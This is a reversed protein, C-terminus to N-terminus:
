NFRKDEFDDKYAEETPDLLRLVKIAICKHVPKGQFKYFYRMENNIMRVSCKIDTFGNQLKDKFKVFFDSILINLEQNTYIKEDAINDLYEKENQIVSSITCNYKSNYQNTLLKIYEYLDDNSIHKINHITITGHLINFIAIYNIRRDYKKNHKLLSAYALLQLIEYKLNKTNNTCKLEMLMDDIVIDCDSPIQKDMKDIKGGLAPNLYLETKDSIFQSFIDGIYAVFEKFSTNKLEKVIKEVSNQNPCQGFSKCHFLSVLFIEEIIDTTKYRKVDKVKDYCVNLCKHLKCKSVSNPMKGYFIEQEFKSVCGNICFHDVSENVDTLYKNKIYTYSKGEKKSFNECDPILYRVYGINNKYKIKLWENKTNTVIFTDDENITVVKKSKISRKSFVSWGGYEDNEIFKWINLNDIHTIIENNKTYREARTDEFDIKKIECIIRRIIYDVFSGALSASISHIKKIGYIIDDSLIKKNSAHEIFNYGFYNKIIHRFCINNNLLKVRSTLNGSFKANNMYYNEFLYKDLMDRERSEKMRCVTRVADKYEMRKIKEMNEM